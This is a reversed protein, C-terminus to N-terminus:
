WLQNALFLGLAKLVEASILIDGQGGRVRRNSCDVGPCLQNWKTGRPQLLQFPEDTAFLRAPRKKNSEGRRLIPTLVSSLPLGRFENSEEVPQSFALSKTKPETARHM